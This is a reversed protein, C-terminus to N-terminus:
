CSAPPLLGQGSLTPEEGFAVLLCLLCLLVQDIICRKIYTLLDRLNLHGLWADGFRAPGTDVCLPTRNLM